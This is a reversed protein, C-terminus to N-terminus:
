SKCRFWFRPNLSTSKSIIQWLLRREYPGPPCRYPAPPISILFVGGDSLTSLRRRLALTQAGAQWAHLVSRQAVADFGDIASFELDIGPCVVLHDAQILNGTRTRM